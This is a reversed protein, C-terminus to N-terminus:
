SDLNFSDCEDWPKFVKPKRSRGLYIQPFGSANSTSIYVPTGVPINGASPNFVKEVTEQGVNYTVQSNDNYVALSHEGWDYFVNGESWPPNSGSTFDIISASVGSASITNLAAFPARIAVSTTVYASNVSIWQASPLGLSYTLSLDPVVNGGVQLKSTPVSLTSIGVNGNSDDIIPRNKNAM